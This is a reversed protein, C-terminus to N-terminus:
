NVTVCFIIKSTFTKVLCVPSGKEHTLVNGILIYCRATGRRCSLRRYHVLLRDLALVVTVTIALRNKM